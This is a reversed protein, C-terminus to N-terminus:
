VAAGSTARRSIGATAGEPDDYLDYHTELSDLFTAVLDLLSGLPMRGAVRFEETVTLTAAELPAPADEAILGRARLYGTVGDGADFAYATEDSLEAAAEAVIETAGVYLRALPKFLVEVKALDLAGERSKLVRALLVMELTRAADIAEREERRMEPLADARADGTNWPLPSKLLDEGAALASDLHDALLYVVAPAAARAPM